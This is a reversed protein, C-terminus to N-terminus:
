AKHASSPTDYAGLNYRKGKYWCRASYSKDHLRVGLPYSSNTKRQDNFFKNLKSDIFICTQPGYERLGNVSLIDKDLDKDIWEQGKMWEEFKSRYRWDEYILVDKYDPHNMVRELMNAWRQYYPNTKKKGNEDIIFTPGDIDNIGFGRVLKKCM